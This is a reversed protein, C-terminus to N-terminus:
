DNSSASLRRCSREFNSSLVSKRPSLLSSTPPSPRPLSTLLPSQHTALLATYHNPRSSRGNELGSTQIPFNLSLRKGQRAADALSASRRHSSPPRASANDLSTATTPSAPPALRESPPPQKPSNPGGVPLVNSIKLPAVSRRRPTTSASPLSLEMNHLARQPLLLERMGHDKPNFSHPFRCSTSPPKTRTTTVSICSIRGFRRGILNALGQWYFYLFRRVSALYSYSIFFIRRWCGTFGAPIYFLLLMSRRHRDNSANAINTAASKSTAIRTATLIIKKRTFSELREVSTNTQGHALEVVSGHFNTSICVM